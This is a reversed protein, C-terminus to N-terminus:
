VVERMHDPKWICADWSIKDYSDTAPELQAESFWHPQGDNRFEPEGDILASWMTGFKDDQVKHFITAEKGTVDGFLHANYCFKIRVRQGVRFISM